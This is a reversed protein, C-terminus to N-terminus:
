IDSKQSQITVKGLQINNKKSAKYEQKEQDQIMSNRLKIDNNKRKQM